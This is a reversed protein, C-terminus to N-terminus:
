KGPPRNPPSNEIFVRPDPEMLNRNDMPPGQFPINGSKRNWYYGTNVLGNGTGGTYYQNSNGQNWNAYQNNFGTPGYGNLGSGYTSGLNQYQYTQGVGSSYTPSYQGLGAGYYNTNYYQDGSTGQNPYGYGYSPGSYFSGSPYTLPVSPNYSSSYPNINSIYYSSSSLQRRKRLARADVITTPGIFDMKSENENYEASDHENPFLGTCESGVPLYTKEETLYESHILRYEPGGPQYESETPLYNSQDDESHQITHISVTDSERRNRQSGQISPAPCLKYGRYYKLIFVISSIVLVLVGVAIVVVYVWRNCADTTITVCTKEKFSEDTQKYYCRLCIRYKTSLQLRDILITQDSTEAIDRIASIKKQDDVRRIHGSCLRENLSRTNNHKIQITLKKCSIDKLEFDVLTTHVPEISFQYVSSGFRSISMNVNM